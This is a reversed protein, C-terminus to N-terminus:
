SFGEHESSQFKQLLIGDNFQSVTVIDFLLDSLGLTLDQTSPDSLDSVSVGDQRMM